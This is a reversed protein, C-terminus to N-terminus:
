PPFCCFAASICSFLAILGMKTCPARLSLTSHPVSSSIFFIIHFSFVSRHAMVLVCLIRTRAAHPCSIRCTVHRRRRFSFWSFGFSLFFSLFFSLTSFHSLFGSLCFHHMAVFPFLSVAKGAAKEVEGDLGEAWPEGGFGGELV